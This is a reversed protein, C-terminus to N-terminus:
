RLGKVLYHSTFQRVRVQVTSSEAEIKIQQTYGSGNGGSDTYRIREKVQGGSGLKDTGLTWDVGLLKDGTGTLNFEKLQTYYYRDISTYFRVPVTGLAPAFQYLFGFKKLREPTGHNYIKTEYKATISVGNDDTGSWTYAQGNGDRSDHLYLSEESEEFSVAGAINWGTFKSWGGNATGTKPNSNALRDWVLVISNYSDVGYPLFFMVYNDFMVASAKEIVTTNIGSITGDIEGSILKSFPNDENSRYLSRINGMRDVAWVDNGVSIMAEHSAVGHEYTLPQVAFDSILTGTLYWVSNKKGIYLRGTQGAQGRLGVGFSPDGLNVNIYDSGGWTEPDNPNSAYLRDPFTSNGIVFMHNKFWEIATGNPIAAVQSVTSGDFKIPTDVGNVGYLLYNAQVFHWRTNTKLGGGSAADTWTTGNTSYQLKSSDGAGNIVRVLYRNGVATYLKAWGLVTASPSDGKATLGPRMQLEGAKRILWNEINAAHYDPISEPDDRDIMSFFHKHEFTNYPTKLM